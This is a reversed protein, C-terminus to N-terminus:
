QSDRLVHTTVAIADTSGIRDFQAMFYRVGEVTLTIVEEGGGTGINEVEVAVLPITDLVTGSSDPSAFISYLVDDVELSDTREFTIQAREKPKLEYVETQQDGITLDTEDAASWAM